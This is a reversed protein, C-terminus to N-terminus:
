KKKPELNPVDRPQLEKLSKGVVKELIDPIKIMNKERLNNMDDSTINENKDVQKTIIKKYRKKCPKWPRRKKTKSQRQLEACIENWEEEKYQLFLQDYDLGASKRRSEVINILKDDEKKWESDDNWGQM